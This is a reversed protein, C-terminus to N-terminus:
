TRAEPDDLELHAPRRRLQSATRRVGSALGVAKIIPTSLAIRAVKVSRRSAASSIAEASGLVRDFRELDDRAEDVAGRAADTTAQMDRLLDDTDARLTAIEGRVANLTDLVRVLAVVLAAFAIVGLVGVIVMALEGTTM